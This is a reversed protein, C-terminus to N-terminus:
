KDDVIVLLVLLVGLGVLGGTVPDHAVRGAAAGLAVSAFFMLMSSLFLPM